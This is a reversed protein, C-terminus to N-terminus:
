NTVSHLWKRRLYFGGAVTLPLYVAILGYLMLRARWEADFVTLFDLLKEGGRRIEWIRRGYAEHDEILLTLRDGRRLSNRIRFYEADSGAHSDDLRYRADNGQLRVFLWYSTGGRGSRSHEEIGAVTGLVERLEGSAPMPQLDFMLRILVFGLFLWVGTCVAWRLRDPIVSM